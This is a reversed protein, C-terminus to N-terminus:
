APVVEASVGKPKRQWRGRKSPEAALATEAAPVSFPALTPNVEDASVVPVPPVLEKPVSALPVKAPKAGNRDGVIANRVALTFEYVIDIEEGSFKAIKILQLAINKHEDTDFNM